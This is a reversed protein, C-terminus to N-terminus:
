IFKTKKVENFKSYLYRVTGESLSMRLGIDRYTKQFDERLVAVAWIKAVTNKNFSTKM